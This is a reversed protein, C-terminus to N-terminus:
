VIEKEIITDDVEIREYIEKIGYLTYSNNYHTGRKKKNVEILKIKELFKICESITHRNIGLKNEIDDYSPYCYSNEDCKSLLYCYIHFSKSDLLTISANSVMTFKDTIQKAPVVVIKKKKLIEERKKSM